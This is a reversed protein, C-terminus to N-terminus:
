RFRAMALVEVVARDRRECLSSVLHEVGGVTGTDPM